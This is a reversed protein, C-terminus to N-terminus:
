KSIPFTISFGLMLFAGDIDIVKHKNTSISSNILTIYDNEILVDVEEIIGENVKRANKIVLGM